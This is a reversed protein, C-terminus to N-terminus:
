EESCPVKCALLMADKDGVGGPNMWPWSRGGGGFGQGQGGTHGQGQNLLLLGSQAM